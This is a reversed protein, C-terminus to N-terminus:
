PCAGGFHFGRSPASRPCVEDGLFSLLTEAAQEVDGDAERLVDSINEADMAPFMGVLLARGEEFPVAM